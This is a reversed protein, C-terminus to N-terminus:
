EDASGSDSHMSELARMLTARDLAARYSLDIVLEALDRILRRSTSQFEDLIAGQTATGQLYADILAEAVAGNREGREHFGSSMQAAISGGASPDTQANM